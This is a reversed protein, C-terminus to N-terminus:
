PKGVRVLDGVNRVGLVPLYILFKQFLQATVFADMLANHAESVPVKYKKALSFLDKKGTANGIRRFSDGNHQMIWEHLVSTDVVMNELIQGHRRKVAKNLFQLDISIFHGVIIHDDCFEMFKEIMRDILPEDKVESPTIEHVVISEARMATDPKVLCYFQKGLDIRGGSMRIGGISVISDNAPNLGTLETDVVVYSAENLALKRDTKSGKRLLMGSLKDKYYALADM